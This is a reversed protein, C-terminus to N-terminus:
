RQLLHRYMEASEFAQGTLTNRMALANENDPIACSSAKTAWLPSVPLIFHFQVVMGSCSLNCIKGCQLASIFPFESCAKSMTKTYVCCSVTLYVSALEQIALPM